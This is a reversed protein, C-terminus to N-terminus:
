FYVTLSGFFPDWVHNIYGLQFATLYRSAFLGIFGLVIIPTRQLWSSPNYTWGPPIEPGPPMKMMMAMMGPMNPILVSLVIVMIGIISDTFYSAADPTWFILPAFLL